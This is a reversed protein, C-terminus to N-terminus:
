RKLKRWWKKVPLCQSRFIGREGLSDSAGYIVDVTEKQYTGFLHDWATLVKGYNKDLYLKNKGHHVRHVSPTVFLLDVIGLKGILRTHILLQYFGQIFICLLIDSPHFGFLPLICYFLINFVPVLFSTRMGVSLNFSTSQHHVKHASWMLPIEHSLRHFWYEIFDLAAFLTLYYLRNKEWTNFSYDEYLALLLPYSMLSFGYDVFMSVFGIGINEIVEPLNYTKDRSYLAIAAEALMLLAFLLILYTEM